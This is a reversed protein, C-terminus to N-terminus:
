AHVLFFSQSLPRTQSPPNQTSSWTWSGHGPTQLEHLKFWRVQRISQVPFRGHPSTWHGSPNSHVTRHLLAPAQLSMSQSCPVPQSMLQVPGPAHPAILQPLCAHLISQVPTADQGNMSQTSEHRHSTSQVPGDAQGLGVHGSNGPASHVRFWSLPAM